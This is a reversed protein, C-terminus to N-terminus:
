AVCRVQVLNRKEVPLAPSFVVRARRIWILGERRPRLAAQSMGSAWATSVPSGSDASAAGAHMLTANQAGTVELTAMLGKAMRAMAHDTM